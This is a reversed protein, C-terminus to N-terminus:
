QALLVSVRGSSLGAAEVYLEAPGNNVAEPVTIEILYFGVFGPALTARTVEVPVRDLMVRVAAAVRPTNEAPAPTGTPWDPTVRGLGTALIQVHSGARLPTGPEVLVGRDADLLMPAGDRDLFIAPSAAALTLPLSRAPRGNSMVVALSVEGAAAGVEFPVQIQSEGGNVSLVPADVNGVRASAVAAGIVSLLSGPAAARRSRDAANVVRPDRFRHPALAAFVGHGDVAVFIQNGGDDFRVDWVVADVPLGEMRSWASPVGGGRLDADAIFLGGDGAAYVFGSAVDAVLARIVGAAALGGGTLDDWFLGGNFTRYIRGGAAALAVRPESPDAFVAAVTLGPELVQWRWTRGRDASAALRGGEVGAYMFDGEAALAIVTAGLAVSAASRAAAERRQGDAEAPLWAARQGPGWLIEQGGELGARVRTGAQYLKRVSLNPLGENLGAWSAGGDLSRWVGDAGAVVVEAADRPSVALDVFGAGLISARRNHSVNRWSRGEDDSQYVADGGFAYIRASAAQGAAARLRVGPAPRSAAAAYDAAEPVSGPATVARWTEFDDSAFVRGSRLRVFLRAGDPSYWVRDVAGGAASALGREIVGAGVARWEVKPATQSVAAPVAALVLAVAAALRAARRGGNNWITDSHGM